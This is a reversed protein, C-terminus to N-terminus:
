KAATTAPIRVSAARNGVGYTFKERSSTEHLGTLRKSNDGYLEIHLKHKAELKKIMKEILDFGEKGERMSATSYNCHCGAGNWDLFLKPEFTAIVGFDEAVRHLIYRAMWFEDAAAIGESPGIQYEWQSPKVEANTGGINIGAELCANFHADVM